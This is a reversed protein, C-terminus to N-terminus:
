ICGGFRPHTYVNKARNRREVIPPMAVEIAQALADKIDDHPPRALVLEEELADIYGGRFHYVSKAEYRSQLLTDIKEKNDKTPQHTDFALPKGDSHCKQKLENVIMKQPGNTESRIRWFKWKAQMAVLHKYIEELKEARFRDIDLVYIDRNSDIGIVVIATYDSRKGVSYALDMSAYIRLEKGGIYWTGGKNELAVKDYYQFYDRKIKDMSPDNPNNYYQAYFQAIDGQYEAKIRELVKRNFGYTRGDPAAQRPWTFVGDVEVKREFVQWVPKEGIINDDEDFVPEKMEMWMAYQDKPHYRTGCAKVFGGPNKISTILSTAAAVKRRGDETSANKYTVVDDYIIIDAHMGITNTEIAGVSVTPDRVRNRAREPHDVSIATATWKERKTEVPHLMDPWYKRYIDNDLMQKIAFTQRVALELTATMYLITTAPHKTIWWACWGAILHSKLHGRPLLLLQNYDENEAMLWECVEKHIEGYQYTPNVLRLFTFLDAEAAERIKAITNTAAKRKAM